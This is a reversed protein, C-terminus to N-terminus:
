DTCSPHSIKIWPQCRKSKQRSTLQVTLWEINSCGSIQSILKNGAHNPISSAEMLYFALKIEFRLLLRPLEFTGRIRKFLTRNGTDYSTRLTDYSKARSKDLLLIKNHRSPTNKCLIMCLAHRGGDYWLRWPAGSGAGICLFM